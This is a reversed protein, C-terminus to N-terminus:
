AGIVKKFLIILLSLGAWTSLAIIILNRLREYELTHLIEVSALNFMATKPADAFTQGNLTPQAIPPM